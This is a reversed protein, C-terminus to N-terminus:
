MCKSHGCSKCTACGQNRELAGGCEPCEEGTVSTGDEVYKKLVRALAKAPSQLDGRTKELQHVVFAVDAGHRLSTSIMRTLSEEEETCFEGVNEVEVETDHDRFIGRYKGRGVRSMTGQLIANRKHFGNKGIFIEYPDSGLLGVVILYLQGTVRTFHLEADLDEPRKPAITKTIHNGNREDEKKDEVLVGTRCNKRYVTIGKCGQKWATEYIEAVQEVEVDEPLNITSSISHDVHRTATAQLHVRQKWNIDEACHGFWPSEEVNDKGTVEMWKQIQPHYVTFEEWCDGNPDTFDVRVNEDNPNIKKRRKYGIMFLPEIGSTTRTLISVSGAPATTLIAINRRGYRKMDEYLKPDEDKIRRLFPNSKEFEHDWIPFAGLEKAMDVSSRYCGLKLTRYIEDVVEICKKSGYAYGLAAITDGLGTIGTGTRRGQECKARIGKWLELERQRVHAPEPDNKIKSIISNVKELELDVMDDMLRQIIQAHKSFLEFDFYAKRTFPHVVYSLLNLLMLRCSDNACLTLESCPNTSITMFGFDSYCDAPSERLINDWFLLGPEAMAHANEVIKMWVEKANVKQVITPKEADVPWRQEYEQDNEVAELFEDSLRVSINAGTVRQLDKKVNAFDLIEPHHVSLTVMLAGRRGAQGVERISNSYRELFPIIGTSTRAANRTASGSPRLHSIDMGTGGRRKSIQVLHEDARAIDGYSDLPSDVVYCNSLTIFQHNNGIGYMPSGQPVVYKFHDFYNFIDQASLPEKFKGAEIRAFENALRWHMQDPTEELLNKDNDRLAYKDLFVKAALDDGDFYDTCKDLSQDYDYYVSESVPGEDSIKQEKQKEITVSEPAM